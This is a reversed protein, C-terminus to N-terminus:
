TDCSPYRDLVRRHTGTQFLEPLQAGGADLEAPALRQQVRAQDIQHGEGGPQRKELAHEDAVAEQEGLPHDVGEISGPQGIQLHADVADFGVADGDLGQLRQAALQLPKVQGALPIPHL